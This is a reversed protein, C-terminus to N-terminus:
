SCLGVHVDITALRGQRSLAGCQNTPEKEVDDRLLLGVYLADATERHPSIRDHSSHCACCEQRVVIQDLVAVQDPRGLFIMAFTTQYDSGVAELRTSFDDCKVIHDCGTGAGNLGNAGQAFFAAEDDRQSQGNHVTLLLVSQIADFAFCADRVYDRKECEAFQAFGAAVVGAEEGEQSKNASSLIEDACCCMKGGARRWLASTSSLRVNEQPVM